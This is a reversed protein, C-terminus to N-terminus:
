NPTYPCFKLLGIKKGNGKALGKKPCPKGTKLQYLLTDFEEETASKGALEEAREKWAMYATPAAGFLLSIIVLVM